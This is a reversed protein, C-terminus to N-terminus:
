TYDMYLMFSTLFNYKKSISFLCFIAFSFEVFNNMKSDRFIKNMPVVIKLIIRENFILNAIKQFIM